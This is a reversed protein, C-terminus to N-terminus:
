PVWVIGHPDRIRDDILFPEWDRARVGFLQAGTESPAFFFYLGSVWPSASLERPPRTLNQPSGGRQAVFVEGSEENIWLWAETGSLRNLPRYLVGESSDFPPGTFEDLIQGSRQIAFMGQGVNFGYWSARSDGSYLREFATESIRTLGPQYTRALYLGPQSEEPQLMTLDSTVSILVEALARNYVVDSYCGPWLTTVAGTNMNVVRLNSRGCLLSRSYLLMGPGQVWALLQEGNSNEGKDVELTQGAMDVVWSGALWTGSSAGAAGFSYAASFFIRRGDPSWELAHAYVPAEPVSLQTLRRLSGSGPSYLYIDGSAPQGPV